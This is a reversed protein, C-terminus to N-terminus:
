LSDHRVMGLQTMEELFREVDAEAAERSVEYREALYAGLEGATQPERLLSWCIGGLENTRTVTFREPHLIIWNEELEM